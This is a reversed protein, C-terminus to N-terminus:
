VREIPNLKCHFKPIFMVTRGRNGLYHEVLTKEEHNSLVVRMDEATMRTTNIGREKLVIKIGKSTGYELVM